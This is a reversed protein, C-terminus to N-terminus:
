SSMDSEMASIKQKAEKKGLSLSIKYMELAERQVVKRKASNSVNKAMASLVEAQKYYLEATAYNNKEHVEEMARQLVIIDQQCSKVLAALTSDKRQLVISTNRSQEPVRKAEAELKAIKQTRVEIDAQLALISAAMTNVYKISKEMQDMKINIDKVYENIDNLRSIDNESDANGNMPVSSVKRSVDISDLLARVQQSDMLAQRTEVLEQNVSDLKRELRENERNDGSQCSSLLIIGATIVSNLNVNKM